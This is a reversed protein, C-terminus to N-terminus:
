SMERFHFLQTHTHTRPSYCRSPVWGVLGFDLLLLLSFFCPLVFRGLAVVFRIVVQTALALCRGPFWDDDDDELLVLVVPTSRDKEELSLSLSLSAGRTIIIIVISCVCQV